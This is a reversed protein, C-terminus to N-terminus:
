TGNRWETVAANEHIPGIPKVANTQIRQAITEAQKQIDKARIEFSKSQHRAGFYFSVIAGLLWWLSEPVLSLGAMRDAFWIPDLMAAVFPGLVGFAMTPRQLRNVGDILRSFGSRPNRYETAFQTLTAQRLVHASVASKESNERLVEITSQVGGGFVFGMLKEILGMRRTRAFKCLNPREDTLSLYYKLREIGYADVLHGPARRATTQTAAITIPGIVGDVTIDMDFLILTRQLVKVAQTSSHQKLDAIDVWGDQNLEYGLRKLTKLTVGYNTPDGPDDSDNVFGGDAKFIEKAIDNIHQM